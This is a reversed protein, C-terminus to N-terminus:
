LGVQGIKQTDKTDVSRLREIEKFSDNLFDIALRSAALVYVDSGKRPKLFSNLMLGYVAHYMARDNAFQKIKAEQEPTM